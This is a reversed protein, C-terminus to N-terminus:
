HHTARLKEWEDIARQAAERVQRTVKVKGGFARGRAWEKVANIATAIAQSEGIGQDRMLARAVNQIYAPLQQM